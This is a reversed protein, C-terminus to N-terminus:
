KPIGYLVYYVPLGDYVWGYKIVHSAFGDYTTLEVICNAFRWDPGHSPNLVGSRIASEVGDQVGHGAVMAQQNPNAYYQEYRAQSVNKLINDTGSGAIESAVDAIQRAEDTPDGDACVIDVAARGVQLEQDDGDTFERVAAGGVASATGSAAAGATHAAVWAGAAQSAAFVAPAVWISALVAGTALVGLFAYGAEKSVQHETQGRGTPLAHCTAGASGYTGGVFGDAAAASIASTGRPVCSVARSAPAESHTSKWTAASKAAARKAVTLKAAALKAAAAKRAAALRAAAAKRAAEAARKARLAAMQVKQWATLRGGGDGAVAARGSPDALNVPDNQCYIYPNQSLRDTMRGPEPDMSLFRGTAPDYYRARLYYLGTATDFFYGAYLFPNGATGTAVQTGAANYETPRGWADYTWRAVVTGAADLLATVDGHANTLYTYTAGGKVMAILAGAADRIFQAVVVGTADTLAM